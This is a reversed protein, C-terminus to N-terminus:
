ARSVLGCEVLSKIMQERDIPKPLFATVEAQHISDVMADPDSVSTLIFIHCQDEPLLGMGVELKRIALMAGHGDLRPMNIDMVVLDYVEHEQKLKREFAAVAEAGDNCLTCLGYDELIGELVQLTVPDDDAILINM